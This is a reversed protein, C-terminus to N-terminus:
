RVIPPDARPRHRLFEDRPDLALQGALRPEDIRGLQHIAELRDLALFLDAQDAQRCLHLVLNEAAHQLFNTGAHAVLIDGRQRLVLAAQEAALLREKEARRRREPLGRAEDIAVQLNPRQTGALM